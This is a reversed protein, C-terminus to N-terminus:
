AAAPSNSLPADTQQSGAGGGAACVIFFAATWIPFAAISGVSWFVSEQVGIALGVVFLAAVAPEVRGRTRVLLVLPVLVEGALFLLGLIGLQAAPGVYSSEVFGGTFHVFTTTRYTAPIENQRGALLLLRYRKYPALLQQETAFGYGAIPRREFADIARAWAETRGGLSSITNQRVFHSGVGTAIMVAVAIAAAALGVAAVIAAIRTRGAVAIATVAGLLAIPLGSRTGTLSITLFSVAVVFAWAIRRTGRSRVAFGTGLAVAFIGFIALENASEFIGKYRHLADGQRGQNPELLAYGLSVAEVMMVAWVIARAVAIQSTRTAAAPAFAVFIGFVLMFITVGHILSHQPAISWTASVCALVAFALWLWTYWGVRVWGTLWLVFGVAAASLLLVWRFWSAPGRLEGQSSAFALSVVLLFSYWPAARQALQELRM